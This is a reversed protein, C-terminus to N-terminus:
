WKAGGKKLNNNGLKIGNAIQFRVYLDQGCISLLIVM